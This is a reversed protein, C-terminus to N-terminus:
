YLYSFRSPEIHNWLWDPEFPDNTRLHFPWERVGQVHGDAFASNHTWSIRQYINYHLGPADDTHGACDGIIIFNHPQKCRILRKPTYTPKAYLFICYNLFYSAGFSAFASDPLNIGSRDSYPKDSPCRFVQINKVYPQYANRWPMIKSPWYSGPDFPYLYGDYDDCYMFTATILQKLNSICVARRSQERTRTFVPLMIGALVVLILIVLLLEILTFGARKIRM